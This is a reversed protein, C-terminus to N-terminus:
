TGFIKRDYAFVARNLFYIILLNKHLEADVFYQQFKPRTLRADFDFWNQEVRNFGQGQKKHLFLSFISANEFLCSTYAM